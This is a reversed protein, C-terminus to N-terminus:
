SRGPFGEGAQKWAQVDFYTWLMVLLFFIIDSTGGGWQEGKRLCKFRSSDKIRSSIGHTEYAWHCGLFRSTNDKGGRM